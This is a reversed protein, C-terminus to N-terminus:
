DTDSSGLIEHIHRRIINLYDPFAAALTPTLETGWDITAPEIGVVRLYPRHGRMEAM